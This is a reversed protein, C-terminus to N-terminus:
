SVDTLPATFVRSMGYCEGYLQINVDYALTINPEANRSDVMKEFGFLRTKGVKLPMAGLTSGIASSYRATPFVAMIWQNLSKTSETVLNSVKIQGPALNVKGSSYCRNFFGAPLVKDYINQMPGTHNPDNDAVFMLGERATACLVNPNGTANHDFYKPAAYNGWLDYSKGELPNNRIDLMSSEDGAGTQAITENQIKLTSISKIKIKLDQGRIKQSNIIATTGSQNKMYMDYIEFNASGNPILNLFFNGLELAFGEWTITGTSATFTATNYPTNVVGDRYTVVINFTNSLGDIIQTQWNTFDKQQMQALKKVVAMWLIKWLRDFPMNHHGIYQVQDALNLVGGDETKLVAKARFIRRNPRGTRRSFKGTYQGITHTYRRKKSAAPKATRARKRSRGNGIGRKYAGRKRSGTVYDYVGRAVYRAGRAAQRDIYDIAGGVAPAGAGVFRRLYDDRKSRRWRNIQAVVM